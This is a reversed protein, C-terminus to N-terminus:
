WIGRIGEKEGQTCAEGDQITRLFIKARDIENNEVAVHVQGVARSCEGLGHRHLSVPDEAHAGIFIDLAQTLLFRRDDVGFATGDDRTEVIRVNM